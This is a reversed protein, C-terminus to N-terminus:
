NESVGNEIRDIRFNVNRTGKRIINLSFDVFIMLKCFLVSFSDNVSPEKLNTSIISSRLPSTLVM